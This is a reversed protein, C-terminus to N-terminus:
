RRGRRWFAFLACQKKSVASSIYCPLRWSFLTYFLYCWRSLTLWYEIRFIITSV